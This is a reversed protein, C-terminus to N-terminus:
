TFFFSHMMFALFPLLNSPPFHHWIDMGGGVGFVCLCVIEFDNGGGGWALCVALIEVGGQISVDGRPTSGFGGGGGACVGTAFGDLDVRNVFDLAWIEGIHEQSMKSEPEGPESGLGGQLTNTSPSSPRACRTHLDAKPAFSPHGRRDESHSFLQVERRPISPSTVDGFLEGWGM